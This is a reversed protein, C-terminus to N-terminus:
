PGVLFYWGLLAFMEDDTTTGGKLPCADCVGDNAGPKSDCARDDGGCLKGRNPENMCAVTDIGCPGGFAIPPPPAASASRRKVESPNTFGNDYVACFKFRRPAPDVSDFAPSPSFTLITPDSYDTTVYINPGPEPECGPGANCATAIGPGWMRFLKGRKHTHSMFQFVRGYQPVEWTRCYERQEFPPVNAVFIQGADFINRLLYKRAEPAAFTLTFWQENTTPYKTVNFAHSNWVVIGKVPLLSYVDTPYNTDQEAETSIVLTPSNATGAGTLDIGFDPPGYGVCALASVVKGACASREGCEAGAPAPIGIGEPDCALGANAGGHCTFPGFRAAPDKLAYAGRYFHIISHHSNPDQTLVNRNYFFCRKGPGGWEDPCDTQMADPITASYDYYTAYCVEDEGNVPIDWPPGYFQVGQDPAPKAPPRIKVPTADPLCSGLLEETGAVVGERPAGSRIWVRLADLETAPIAPLGSPMVSGPVDALGLTSKALKRWLFSREHEGPHVRPMQGLPSPVDVLNAYSVDARLDLGGQATSGHCPGATCGRKEFVTQQIAAYTHEFRECACVAPAAARRAVLKAGGNRIAERPFEACWRADGIRLTVTVASQPGAFLTTWAARAGTVTLTGKKRGRKLLVSKIGGNAASPDRYRYGRRGVRFWKAGPLTIVGSDGDAAGVGAVRLSTPEFVPDPMAEGETVRWRAQFAVRRQEPRRSKALTLRSSSLPFGRDDEAAPVATAALVLLAAALPRLRNPPM